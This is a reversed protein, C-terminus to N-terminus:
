YDHSEALEVIVTRPPGVKAPAKEPDPWVQSRMIDLFREAAAADDFDSDLLVRKADGVPRFIRYRRMGNEARRGADRGFAERWQEYDRVELEIRLTTM